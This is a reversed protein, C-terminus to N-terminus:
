GGQLTVKRVAVATLLKGAVTLLIVWLLQLGVALWMARGTLNGSYIRLPINQMSAFPLLGFLGQLREPFFPLPIVAGSFFDAAPLIAMRIGEASITFFASFYILMCFAVTVALGGALTLLFLLFATVNAPAMLGYPAPLVSAAVLIPVCRLTAKALRDAISRAFWMNYIDIPRCLEYSVNGNVINQFIENDMMFIMFLALFAQQMWIYSSAAEFPMPFSAADARYFARFMLIEMSGWVFQTLIGAFAATRYQLGMSFHLRFFATYKRLSLPQKPRYATKHAM